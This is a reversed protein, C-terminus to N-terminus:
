KKFRMANHLATHQGRTMLLLNSLRNDNTIGNIHHVVENKLLKRGLKKEMILRHEEKKKGQGNNAIVYGKRLYKGGKWNKNKDGSTAGNRVAEHAKVTLEKGLDKNQKYRYLISCRRCCFKSNPRGALRNFENNCNVCKKTINTRM